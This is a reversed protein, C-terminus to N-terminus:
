PAEPGATLMKHVGRFYPLWPRLYKFLIRCAIYIPFFSFQFGVTEMGLLSLPFGVTFEVDQFRTQMWGLAFPIPCLIGCSYAAMMFFHKGWTDTAEKNLAQYSQQDGSEYASISLKEKRTVEVKMGDIHSRNFKVALSVCVEGIVVTLFSLIFTGIFYDIIPVGTIRYFWILFPDVAEYFGNFFSLM